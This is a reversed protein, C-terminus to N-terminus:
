LDVPNPDGFPIIITNNGPNLPQIKVERKSSVFHGTLVFTLCLILISLARKRKM